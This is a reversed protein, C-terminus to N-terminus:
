RGGRPRGMAIMISLGPRIPRGFRDKGKFLHNKSEEEEEGNEGNLPYKKDLYEDELNRQDLEEERTKKSKLREMEPDEPSMGNRSEAMSESKLRKYESDTMASGPMSESSGGNEPKKKKFLNHMLEMIRDNM